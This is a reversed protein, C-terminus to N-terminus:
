STSSDKKKSGKKNTDKELTDNCYMGLYTMATFGTATTEALSKLVFMKGYTKVADNMDKIDSSWTNIGPTAISWGLELAQEAVQRGNGFRDPIYIKKRNTKNLWAIQANSLENGLLAVGGIAFADFWGEVIYLPEETKRFLEDFGYLVKEKPFSPSLYKKIHKDTLDRGIYFILNNDKYIPIIIRKFWRDLVEVGTKHSLYFPYSKPDVARIGELYERAVNAWQDNPSADVLPYFTSPLSIVAPQIDLITSSSSPKPDPIGGDRNQLTQILVSQWADEPVGFSSLVEIMTKPMNKNTEADFVSAHGCNFCHYAVKGNDFRFGARPGKRGHDNCVKCLVPYWGTGAANPPLPIYQRIVQELPVIEM